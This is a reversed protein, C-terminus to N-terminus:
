SEVDRGDEIYAWWTSIAAMSLIGFGALVFVVNSFVLALFMTLIGSIWLSASAIIIIARM